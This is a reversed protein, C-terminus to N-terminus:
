YQGGNCYVVVVVVEKEEEEEAVMLRSGPRMTREVPVQKEKNNKKLHPNWKWEM